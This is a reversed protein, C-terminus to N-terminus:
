SILVWSLSTGKGIDRKVRKGLIMKLYKPYLGNVLRISEIDQSKTKNEKM